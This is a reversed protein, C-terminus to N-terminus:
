LSLSKGTFQSWYTALTAFDGVSKRGNVIQYAAILCAGFFGAELAVSQVAYALYYVHFPKKQSGM